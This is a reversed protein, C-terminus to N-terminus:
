QNDHTMYSSHHATISYGYGYVHMSTDLVIYLKNDLYQIKYFDMFNQLIRINNM